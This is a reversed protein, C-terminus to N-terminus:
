DTEPKQNNKDNNEPVWFVFDNSESDFATELLGRSTLSSLMNGILRTNFSDIIQSYIKNNISYVGHKKKALNKVILLAEQQTLVSDIELREQEKLEQLDTALNELEPNKKGFADFILVRTSEVFKEIDVIEYWEDRKKM